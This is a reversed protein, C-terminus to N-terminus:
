KFFEILIDKYVAVLLTLDDIRLNEDVKHITENTLGFEVVPCYDKFFRADSTGGKTSLEPKRGCLKEVSKAVLGTWEGPKTLFSEAGCSTELTYNGTVSDLVKRVDQELKGADWRDNFRINFHAKGESPIVNTATNGVDITTIQLNTEPFFASGKDFIHQSLKDLAAALIPLPNDALHPYAVHGQTGHVTLFGHLSGRRGIKIEEGMEKVNSSEGVLAADPVHGNEEMWELVRKTGNIAESEEDGTIAVSISGKPAGYESLYEQVAIVFAANAAKMDSTGRGYMIGDVIEGGFPDHTWKDPDGVPVVDTHGNYCLHPGTDGLRAFFNKVPYSGGNGEFPLDHIDFGMTKLPKKLVDQAGDDDPTVSQCRILSQTLTIVNEIM